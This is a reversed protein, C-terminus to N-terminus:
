SQIPWIEINPTFGINPFRHELFGVALEKQDKTFTQVYAANGKGTLAADGHSDFFELTNGQKRMAITMGNGTIIAGGIGKEDSLSKVAASLGAPGQREFSVQLTPGFDRQFDWPNQAVQLSANGICNETEAFTDKDYTNNLILEEIMESSIPLKSAIFACALPTCAAPGGSQYQNVGHAALILTPYNVQNQPVKKQEIKAIDPTAKNPLEKEEKEKKLQTLITRADQEPMGDAVIMLIEDEQLGQEFLDQLTKKTDELDAKKDAHLKALDPQSTTKKDEAPIQPAIKKENAKPKDPVTKPADENSKEEQEEIVNKVKGVVPSLPHNDQKSLDAVRKHILERRKVYETSFYAFIDDILQLLRNFLTPLLSHPTKDTRTHVAREIFADLTGNIINM